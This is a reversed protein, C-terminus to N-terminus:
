RIDDDYANAPANEELVVPAKTEYYAAEAKEVWAREEAGARRLTLPGYVGVARSRPVENLQENTTIKQGVANGDADYAQAFETVQEVIDGVQIEGHSKKAEIWDGFGGGRLILRVLDGPEPVGGEGGIEAKATTGPLALLTLVLEQRHKGDTKVVPKGDKHVDRQQQRVLAGVFREGIKTRKVVPAGPTSPTDLTIPM